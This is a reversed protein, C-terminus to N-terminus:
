ARAEVHRTSHLCAALRKRPAQAVSMQMCMGM